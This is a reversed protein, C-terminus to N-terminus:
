VLTWRTAVAFAGERRVTLSMPGPPVDELVFFGGEDAPVRQVEATGPRRLEIDAPEPPFLHGSLRRLEGAAEVQVAVIVEDQGREDVVQFTLQRPQPVTASGRVALPQREPDPAASDEVLEALEADLDRLIFSAKALAVLDRPAPDVERLVAGLRVLLRQDEAESSHSQAGEAQGAGEDQRRRGSREHQDPEPPSAASSEAPDPAPRREPGPRPDDGAPDPPGSPSTPDTM